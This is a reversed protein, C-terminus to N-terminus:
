SSSKNKLFQLIKNVAQELTLKSNDVVLDALKKQELYDFGYIRKWEKREINERESLLEAAEKLPIGDRKAVREARVKLSTDVWIKYDALNELMKISLKGCVIVNGKEAVEVQKKDLIDRHFRESKGLATQWVKLAALSEKKTNAYSKQIKGPSFYKLKLKKAVEKAISSTGAGPPGSVAIVIRGM